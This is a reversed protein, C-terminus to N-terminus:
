KFHKIRFLKSVGIMLPLKIFYFKSDRYRKTGVILDLFYNGFHPNNHLFEIALKSYKYFHRALSYAVKQDYLLESWLTEEYSKFFEKSFIAKDFASLIVNSAIQSSKISPYIGEGTIPDVVGAADGVLLVNDVVLPRRFGGVPLIAGKLKSRNIKPFAIFKLFEELQRSIDKAMHIFTGIGVNVLNEGKRFIWGYGHKVFGFYMHLAQDELKSMFEKNVNTEYAFAFGFENKNWTKRINFLRAVKSLAGDAGVVIRSEVERQGNNLFLKVGTDTKKANDLRNKEIFDVGENIASSVLFNDFLVRRTMYVVKYDSDLVVRPGDKHIMYASKTADLILENPLSLGLDSLLKYARYTIGGGCPKDRPFKDKDILAVKLGNKALLYAITAGAPGAGVVAVDYM